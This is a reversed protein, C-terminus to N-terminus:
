SRSNYKLHISPNSSTTFNLYSPDSFTLRLKTLESKAIPRKEFEMQGCNSRYKRFPLIDYMFYIGAGTPIRHEPRFAVLYTYIPMNVDSTSVFSLLSNRTKSKTYTKWGTYAELVLLWSILGQTSMWRNSILWAMVVNDSCTSSWGSKM